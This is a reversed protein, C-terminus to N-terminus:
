KKKKGKKKDINKFIVVILIILVLIVLYIWSNIGTGEKKTIIVPITKENGGSFGFGGEEGTSTVISLEIDYSTGIDVKKPITVRIEVNAKEGFPVSYTADEDLLTAIEGGQTMTVKAILDQEPPAMNQLIVVIDKTEGPNIELSKIGPEYASSVAFALVNASLLVLLGLVIGAKTYLTKNKM